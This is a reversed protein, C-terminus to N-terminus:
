DDTEICFVRAAAALIGAGVITTLSKRSNM